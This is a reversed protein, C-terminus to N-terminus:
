STPLRNESVEIRGLKVLVECGVQRSVLCSEHRTRLDEIEGVVEFGDDCRGRPSGLWTPHQNGSTVSCDIGVKFAPIGRSGLAVRDFDRAGAM